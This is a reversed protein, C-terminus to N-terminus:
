EGSRTLGCADSACIALPAAELAACRRGCRSGCGDLTRQTDQMVIRFALSKKGAGTRQGPLRRVTRDPSGHGTRGQRLGDLLAQVPQGNLLWWPWIAFWRLSVPFRPIAPCRQAAALAGLRTRVAGASGALSTSRCWRPHLEGLMGIGVATRLMVRGARGPHLAPHDLKRSARDTVTGFLRRSTPRSTMSTSWVHASAGSSPCRPAPRWAPLVRSAPSLGAGARAPMVCSAADLSSCACAISKASALQSAINALWARRDLSSRM